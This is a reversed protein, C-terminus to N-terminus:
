PDIHGKTRVQQMNSGERMYNYYYLKKDLTYIPNLLDCTLAGMFKVDEHPQIETFRLNGIFDKKICYQWVMSPYGMFPFNPAEYNFRIIPLNQEKITSLILKIASSELLWDDGDIFWIYDGKARDLGFNRALGCSQVETNIIKIQSYQNAEFDMLVKATNDTCADLVFILEVEYPAFAQLKLTALLPQIFNELNHCPIIISLDM